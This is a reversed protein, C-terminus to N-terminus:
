YCVGHGGLVFTLNAHDTQATNTWHGMFRFCITTTNGFNAPPYGMVHAVNCVLKLNLLDSDCVLKRLCAFHAMDELHYPRLVEFNTHPHLVYVRM